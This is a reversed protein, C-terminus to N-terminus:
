DGHTSDYLARQAELRELEDGCTPCHAVHVRAVRDDAFTSCEDCREIEGDDTPVWGHICSGCDEITCGPCSSADIMASAVARIRNRQEVTLRPGEGILVDLFPLHLLRANM